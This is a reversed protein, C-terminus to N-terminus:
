NPQRELFSFTVPRAMYRWFLADSSGFLQRAEAPNSPELLRAHQEMTLLSNGDLNRYNSGSCIQTLCTGASCWTGFFLLLMFAWRSLSYRFEGNRLFIIWCVCLVAMAPLLAKIPFDSFKGIRYAPFVVFSVIATLFFIRVSWPIEHGDLRPSMVWYLGFAIALFLLLTLPISGPAVFDWLFGRTYTSNNSQFYLVQPILLLPAVLINQPTKVGSSRAVVVAALLFPLTGISAFASWLPLAAAAFFVNHVSRRCVAAYMVMLVIIWAPLCHHAGWNLATLHNPVLLFVDRSFRAAFWQDTSILPGTGGTTIVFGLQDLGGYLLFFIGLWISVRGALRFFWACALMAGLAVWALQCYRASSWGAIKGVVAAPLYFGHYAVLVQSTSDGSSNYGLPWPFRILDNLLSNHKFFDYVQYGWGWGSWILLWVILIGGLAAFHATIQWHPQRDRRLGIDNPEGKTQGSDRVALYLGAALLLTFIFAFFGSLHSLFFIALPLFLYGLSVSELWDPLQRKTSQIESMATETKNMTSKM